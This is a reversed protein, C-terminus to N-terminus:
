ITNEFCKEIAELNKGQEKIGAVKKNATIKTKEGQIYEIEVVKTLGPLLGNKVKLSKIAKKPVFSYNKPKGLMTLGYFHIGKNTVNCIFYKQSLTAFVGLLMTKGFSAQNVGYFYYSEIEDVGMTQKILAKIGDDNMKFKASIETNEFDKYNSNEEIEVNSKESVIVNSGCSKCFKSGEDVPKGCNPCYM